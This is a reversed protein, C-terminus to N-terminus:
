APFDASDRESQLGHVFRAAKDAANQCLDRRRCKLRSALNASTGQKQNAVIGVSWATSAACYGCVLTTGFEAKYEDFSEADVLAGIVTASITNTRGRKAPQLRSCIRSTVAPARHREAPSPRLLTAALASGTPANSRLAHADDPERFDITGSLPRTCDPAALDEDSALDPRHRGKRAVPRCPVPGSGETMLLKDCMCRCTAAARSAASGHIAALQPVGQGRICPTTAFSAASTM